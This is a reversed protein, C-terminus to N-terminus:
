TQRPVWAATGPPVDAPQLESLVLFPNPIPNPAHVVHLSRVVTTTESGDRRVLRLQDGIRLPPDLDGIGPTLLLGVGNVLFSDAVIFALRAVSRITEVVTLQSSDLTPVSWRIAVQNERQADPHFAVDAM